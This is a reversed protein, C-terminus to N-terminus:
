RSTPNSRRSRACNLGHSVPHILVEVEDTNSMRLLDLSGRESGSKSSEAVHRETESTYRRLAPRSVDGDPEDHATLPHSATSLQRRLSTQRSPSVLEDMFALSFSALQFPTVRQKRPEANCM